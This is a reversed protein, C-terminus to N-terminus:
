FGHFFQQQRYKRVLCFRRNRDTKSEKEAKVNLEEKAEKAKIGEIHKNFSLESMM